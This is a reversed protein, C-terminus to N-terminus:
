SEFLATESFSRRKINKHFFFTGNLGRTGETVCRSTGTGLNAGAHLCVSVSVCVHVCVCVCVCM